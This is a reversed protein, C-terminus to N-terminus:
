AGVAWDHVILGSGVPGSDDAAAFMWGPSNGAVACVQGAGRGGNIRILRARVPGRVIRRNLHM